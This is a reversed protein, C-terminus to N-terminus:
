VGCMGECESLFNMQGHDEATSLDVQSLPQRGMAAHPLHRQRHARLRLRAPEDAINGGATQKM